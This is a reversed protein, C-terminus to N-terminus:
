RQSGNLRPAFPSAAILSETSRLNDASTGRRAQMARRRQKDTPEHRESFSCFAQDINPWRGNKKSRTWRFWSDLLDGRLIGPKSALATQIAAETPTLDQTKEQAHDQDREPLCDIDGNPYITKDSESDLRIQPTVTVNGTVNSVRATPAKGERRNRHREVRFKAHDTKPFQRRAYSPSVWQGEILGLETLQKRTDCAEKETIRMTFAAARDDCPVLMRHNM